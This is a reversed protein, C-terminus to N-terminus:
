PQPRGCCINAALFIAIERPKWYLKNEPIIEVFTCNRKHIKRFQIDLSEVHKRMAFRAAHM